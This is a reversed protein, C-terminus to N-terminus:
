ESLNAQLHEVRLTRELLAVDPPGIPLFQVTAQGKAMAFANDSFRGHALTTLTVYLAAASAHLEVDVTGDANARPAVTASVTAAPLKLDKPPALLIENVSIPM